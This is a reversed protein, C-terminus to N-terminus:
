TRGPAGGRVRQLPRRHQGRPDEALHERRSAASISSATSARSWASSRQWTPFRPRTSRRARRARRRSRCGTPCGCCRISGACHRACRAASGGGAGTILVRHMQPAYSSRRSTQPSSGLPRRRARRPARCLRPAGLRHGRARLRGVCIAISSLRINRPSRPVPPTLRELLPDDDGCLLAVRRARQRCPDGGAADHRELRAARGRRERRSRGSSGARPRIIRRSRPIPSGPTAPPTGAATSRAPSLASRPSTSIAARGAPPPAGRSRGRPPGLNATQRSEVLELTIGAPLATPGCRVPLARSFRRGVRRGIRAGHREVSVLGGGSAAGADVRRASARPPPCSSSARPM